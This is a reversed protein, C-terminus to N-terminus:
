QAVRAQEGVKTDCIVVRFMGGQQFTRAKFHVPECQTLDHEPNEARSREPAKAMEFEPSATM